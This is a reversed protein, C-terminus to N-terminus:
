GSTSSSESSKLEEVDSWSAKKVSSLTGELYQSCQSKQFSAVTWIQQQCQVSYNVSSAHMMRIHSPTYGLVLTRETVIAIKTVESVEGKRGGVVEEVERGTTIFNNAILLLNTGRVNYTNTM